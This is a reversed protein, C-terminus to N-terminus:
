LPILTLKKEGEECASADIIEEISWEGAINQCSDGAKLITETKNELSTNSEQKAAEECTTMLFLSSLTMIKILTNMNIFMQIFKEIFPYNCVLTKIYSFNGAKVSKNIFIFRSPNVLEIM